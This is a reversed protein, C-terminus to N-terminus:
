EKIIDNINDLTETTDSVNSIETELIPEGVKKKKVKKEPVPDYGCKHFPNCKCLRKFTLWSAKFFNFRIFCEKAYESCSPTFRCRPPYKPSINKQYYNILKLVLKKM